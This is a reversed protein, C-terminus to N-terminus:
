HEREAKEARRCHKVLEKYYIKGTLIVLTFETAQNSGSHYYVCVGCVSIYLCQEHVNTYICVCKYMSEMHLNMVSGKTQELEADAGNARM